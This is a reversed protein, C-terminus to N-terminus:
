GLVEDLLKEPKYLRRFFARRFRIEDPTKTGESRKEPREDYERFITLFSLVINSNGFNM